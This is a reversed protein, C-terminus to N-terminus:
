KGGWVAQRQQMIGTVTLIFISTLVWGALVQIWYWVLLFGRILINADARPQPYWFAEQHLAFLPIFVDASFSLANFRPYDPFLCEAAETPLPRPRKAASCKGVHAKKNHVINKYDANALVVPQHPVIYGCYNALCFIAAGALIIAASTRAMRWLSYNYGTAREGFWRLGLWGRRKVRSWFTDQEPFKQEKTICQEMAFLIERADNGRGVAFLVKAAQEFPQPSFPVSAPRRGLWNIRSKANTPNLFRSYSFGTLDFNFNDQSEEDDTFVDVSAFSLNVEGSGKVKSFILADKIKAGQAFLGSKFNGGECSFVGGIDASVFSVDGTASFGESMLVNGGMKATNADLSEGKNNNRIKSGRLLLDRGINAGDFRVLGGFEGEDCYAAGGIDAGTFLVTGDACFGEGMMLNSEIKIEDAALAIGEENKFFKGGTCSLYGGIQAGLFRAGGKASFGCGLVINAGVKIRDASLAAIEGAKTQTDFAGKTFTGRDCFVGGGIKADLLLVAKDSSCGDMVLDSDIQVGACILGNSLRSDAVSLYRFGAHAMRVESDFHCGMMVLMYPSLCYELDLVERVQAGQLYIRNGLIPNKKSGGRVFFGIVEARIVPANKDDPKPRTTGFMCPRGEAMCQVFHREAENLDAPLKVPNILASQTKM